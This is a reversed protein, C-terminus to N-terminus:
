KAAPSEVRIRVDVAQVDQATAVLPNLDLESIQPFDTVLQALRQLLEQLSALPLAPRNRAGALVPYAKVSRVLREAQGATLPALAFGVDGMVEVFVGGLGFAVSHGLGPVKTAGALLEVDATLQRQVLFTVDHDEELAATLEHAAAEVEASSGLNLRVAGVETKHVVSAAEAKLVVPYGLEAAAQGADQPSAVRREEVVPIGYLRLLDSATQGSLWGDRGGEGVLAEARQRDVLFPQPTEAPRARLEAYRCLAAAARAASEPFYYTPLGGQHLIDVTAQWRDNTLVEMLVPKTQAQAVRVIERAVSETDVFFPTVMTILLLDYNDDRLLAEAAAGFHDAGATAMMDVPNHLSAIGMLSESLTAKTAESPAPMEIGRPIAEDSAMIALSGTNTLMAVRKGQPPKQSAFAVAAECLEQATRFRLVGARDFILDTAADAAMLGGTHSAVARAGVDTTGSKLALVPKTVGQLVRLLEGPDAFSEAHLVICRTEPDQEWYAIIEPISVDCANGNSAYMRFGVGLEALHNNILEAVGGGQACISIHGPQMRAFTFNAYLPAAPDSNMCGQCNPGWLRLGAERGAARVEEELAQGEPGTEKFGSTNIIVGRVGKRGCQRVVEPVLTNRVIIHALDVEDPVDEITPYAALGKVEAHKPHVPYIPGPFGYDMLNTMIRNPISLAHNSAGIIAISRPKFFMDLSM